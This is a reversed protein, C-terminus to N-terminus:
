IKSKSTMRRFTKIKYSEMCFSNLHLFVNGQFLAVIIKRFLPVLYKRFLVMTFSPVAAFTATSMTRVTVVFFGVPPLLGTNPM